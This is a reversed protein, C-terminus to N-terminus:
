ARFPLILIAVIGEIFGFWFDVRSKRHPRVAVYIRFCLYDLSLLNFGVPLWDVFGGPIGKSSISVHLLGPKAQFWIWL